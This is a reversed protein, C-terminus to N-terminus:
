CDARLRLGGCPIPREAKSSSATLPSSNMFSRARNSAVANNDTTGYATACDTEPEMVPETISGEPAASGPAVIVTALWDVPTSVGVFLLPAPYKLAELRIAPM